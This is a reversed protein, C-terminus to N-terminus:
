TNFKLCIEQLEIGLKVTLRSEGDQLLRLMAPRWVSLPSRVNFGPWHPVAQSVGPPRLCQRWRPSHAPTDTGSQTYTVAQPLLPM